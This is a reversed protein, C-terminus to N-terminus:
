YRDSHHIHRIAILEGHLAPDLTKASFGNLGHRCNVEGVVLQGRHRRRDPAEDVFVPEGAGWTQVREAGRQCLEVGRRRRLWGRLSLRVRLRRRGLAVLPRPALGTPFHGRGCVSDIHVPGVGDGRRRGDVTHAHSPGGDM